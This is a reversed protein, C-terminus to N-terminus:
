EECFSNVARLNVEGALFGLSGLGDKKETAVAQMKWKWLTKVIKCGLLEATEQFSAPPSPTRMAKM